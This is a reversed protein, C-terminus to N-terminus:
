ISLPRPGRSGGKGGANAATDRTSSTPCRRSVRHKNKTALSKPPPVPRSTLIHNVQFYKTNRVGRLYSLDPGGARAFRALDPVFGDSPSSPRQPLPLTRNRRDHERLARPTLWARSLRSWFAPTFNNRVSSEGRAVLRRQIPSSDPLRTRNSTVPRNMPLAHQAPLVASFPFFSPSSAAIKRKWLENDCSTLRLIRHQRGIHTSPNPSPQPTKAPYSSLGFYSM